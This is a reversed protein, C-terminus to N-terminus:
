SNTQKAVPDYGGKSWPNCRIIRWMGLIIGVFIGRTTLADKAYESCSPSYRCNNGLLPSLLYQYTKILKILVWSVGKTIKELGEKFM